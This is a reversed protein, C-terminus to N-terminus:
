NDKKRHIARNARNKVNKLKTKAKNTLTGGTETKAAAENIKAEVKQVEKPAQDIPKAAEEIKLQQNQIGADLKNKLDGLGNAQAATASAIFAFTGMLFIRNHPKM